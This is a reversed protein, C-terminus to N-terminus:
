FSLLTTVCPEHVQMLVYFSKLPVLTLLVLLCLFNNICVCMCGFVCLHVCLFHFSWIVFVFWSLAAVMNCTWHPVFFAVNICREYAQGMHGELEPLCVTIQSALWTSRSKGVRIWSGCFLIVKVAQYYVCIINQRSSCHYIHTTSLHIVLFILWKYKVHQNIFLHCYFFGGASGAKAHATM